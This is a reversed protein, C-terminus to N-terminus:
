TNRSKPWCSPHCQALASSQMLATLPVVSISAHISFKIVASGANAPATTRSFSWKAEANLAIAKLFREATGTVVTRDLASCINEGRLIRDAEAHIERYTVKTANFAIKEGGYIMYLFTDDEKLIIGWARHEPKLAKDLTSQRLM